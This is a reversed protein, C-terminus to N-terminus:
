RHSRMGDVNDVFILIRNYAANSWFYMGSIPRNRARELVRYKRGSARGMPMQPHATAQWIEGYMQRANTVCKRDSPGSQM